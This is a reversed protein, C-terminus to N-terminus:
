RSRGHRALFDDVRAGEGPVDVNVIETVGVGSEATVHQLAKHVLTEDGITLIDAYDVSFVSPDKTRSVSSDYAVEDFIRRANESAVRYSAVIAEPGELVEGYVEYRVTSSLVSAAAEYDDHDLARALEAVYHHPDTVRHVTSPREIFRSPSDSHSPRETEFRM